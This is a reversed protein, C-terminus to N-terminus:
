TNCNGGAFLCRYCHHERKSAPLHQEGKTPDAHGKGIAFLVHSSCTSISQSMLLEKDKINSPIPIHIEVRMLAIEGGNLM